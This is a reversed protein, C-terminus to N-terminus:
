LNHRKLISPNVKGRHTANTETKCPFTNMQETNMADEASLNFCYVTYAQWIELTAQKSRVYALEKAHVISTNQKLLFFYHRTVAFNHCKLKICHDSVWKNCQVYYYHACFLTSFVQTVNKAIYESLNSSHIGICVHLDYCSLYSPLLCQRSFFSVLSLFVSSRFVLGQKNDLLCPDGSMRKKSADNCM